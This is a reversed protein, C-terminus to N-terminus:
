VRKVVSPIRNLYDDNEVLRSLTAVQQRVEIVPAAFRVLGLGFCLPVGEHGLIPVHGKGFFTTDGAEDLFRRVKELESSTGKSV